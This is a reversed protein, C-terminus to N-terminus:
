WQRLEKERKWRDFFRAPPAPKKRMEEATERVFGCKARDPADIALDTSTDATDAPNSRTGTATAYRSAARKRPQCRAGGCMVAHHRVRRCAASGDMIIHRPSRRQLM